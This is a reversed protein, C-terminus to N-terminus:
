SRQDIVIGLEKYNTSPKLSGASTLRIGVFRGAGVEAPSALVNLDIYGFSSNAPITVTGSLAAFHVGAVANTVTLTASNVAPTQRGPTGPASTFLRTQPFNFTSIPSTTMVEYGVTQAKSSQPGVLNIRIKVTQVFRRISSDATVTPVRGDAIRAIIPYTLGPANANLATADIEALSSTFLVPDNKICGSLLTIISFAIATIISLSKKM